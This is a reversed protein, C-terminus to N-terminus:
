EAAEAEAAAAKKTGRKRTTTAAKATDETTEATEGAAEAMEATEAEAGTEEMLEILGSKLLHKLGVSATTSVEAVNDPLLVTNGGKEAPIGIVKNSINKVKM